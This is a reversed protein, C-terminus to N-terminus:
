SPKRASIFSKLLEVVAIQEAKTLSGGSALRDAFGQAWQAKASITPLDFIPPDDKMPIGERVHVYMQGNEFSAWFDPPSANLKLGYRAAFQTGDFKAPDIKWRKPM